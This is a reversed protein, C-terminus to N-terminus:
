SSVVPTHTIGSPTFCQLPHKNIKLLPKLRLEVSQKTVHSLNNRTMAILKRCVIESTVSQRMSKCSSVGTENCKSVGEKFFLWHDLFSLMIKKPDGWFQSLDSVSIGSKRCAQM